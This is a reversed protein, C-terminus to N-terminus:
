HVLWEQPIPQRDLGPGTVRLDPTVGTWIYNNVGEVNMISPGTTRHDIYRIRIPHAGKALAISWNGFAHLRTAPYWQENGIWIQLDYGSEIDPYIMERPAHFTYVGDEPVRLHGEYTLAFFKERPAAAEGIPPNSDPVVSLDFLPSAGDSRAELDDLNLWLRKWDAEYYRYRLGPTPSRLGMGGRFDKRTYVAFSEPTAHTGSTHLPNETVGPRYARARVETNHEIRIPGTYRESQPTPDSGDLTYHIHVGPTKSSLTVDLAGEFVNQAPGIEVPAIPRYVPTARPTGSLDLEFDPHSVRLARENMVFTECGLAMIQDGTVLLAEATAQIAGTEIRTPKAPSALFFIPIGNHTKASFGATGDPRQIPQVDRLAQDTGTGPALPMFTSVVLTDGTGPYAVTLEAQGKSHERAAYTLNASSFQRMELNAANVPRGDDSRTDARTVVRRVDPDIVIQDLQNTSSTMTRFPLYWFQKYEHANRTMMRDAVIWLKAGRVYFALRQHTVGRYTVDPSIRFENHNRYYPGAYVGEMLNLTDSAHWRWDAPETWAVSLFTKHGAPDPVKYIGAHFYQQMGDVTIPTNRDNYNGFSDDLLLDEGYYNIGFKNNNRRSRYAGYAGPQPSCFMAGYGSIEHWQHNHLRHEWGDRVINYGAYPFWESHATPRIGAEPSHFAALLKRIEPEDYVEPTMTYRGDVHLLGAARRDNRFPIPVQNNPARLRLLYRARDNVARRIERKLQDDHRAERIWPRENWAPVASRAGLWELAEYIRFGSLNYWPCQQNEAGDRLFQTAIIDEVCRRKSEHFLLPSAKFEDLIIAALMYVASDPTWNHVNSRIYMLGQLSYTRVAANLFRAITTNPIVPNDLPDLQMAWILEKILSLYPNPFSSPVLTPHVRDAYTANLAWDDVYQSWAELFKREGTLQYARLLFGTPPKVLAVGKDYPVTEGPAYPLNWNVQGPPGIKVPKGGLTLTHEDVLLRARAIDDEPTMNGTVRHWAHFPAITDQHIGWQAPNRLKNRMYDGFIDLARAYEGAELAKATETLETRRLLNHQRRLPEEVMVLEFFDKALTEIGAPEDRTAWDPPSAEARAPLVISLSLALISFRCLM